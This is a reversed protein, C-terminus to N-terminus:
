TEPHIMTGSVPYRKGEAAIVFELGDHTDTALIKFFDELVPRKKYTDAAIVWDHAHYLLPDTQMKKVLDSPFHAFLESNKKLDDLKSQFPRSENYITNSSLTEIHDENAM